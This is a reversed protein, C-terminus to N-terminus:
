TEGVLRSSNGAVHLKVIRIVSHKASVALGLYGLLPYAVVNKGQEHYPASLLLPSPKRIAM